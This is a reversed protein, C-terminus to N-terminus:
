YQGAMTMCVCGLTVCKAQQVKSQVQKLSERNNLIQKLPQELVNGLKLDHRSFCPYLNGDVDLVFHSTGMPCFINNPKQHNILKLVARTYNILTEDKNAWALMAKELQKKQAKTTKELAMPQISKILPSIEVPDVWHTLNNKQCFQSMPLIDAINRRTVTQMIEVQINKPKLKLLTQLNKFVLAGQGRQQDNVEPKLSDLSVSVTSFGSTIIKKIIPETLLVGNTLLSIELNQERCLKAFNFLDQNLLAEGGTFIIEDFYTKFQPIIKQFDQSHNLRFDRKNLGTNYYCYRCGLNCYNTLVWYLKRIM